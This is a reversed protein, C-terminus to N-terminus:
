KNDKEMRKSIFVYAEELRKIKEDVQIDERRVLDVALKMSLYPLSVALFSESTKKKEPLKEEKTTNNDSEELSQQEVKPPKTTEKMSNLAPFEGEKVEIEVWIGQNGEDTFDKSNFGWDFFAKNEGNLKVVPMLYKKGKKTVKEEIRVLEGILKM